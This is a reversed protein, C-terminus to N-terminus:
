YHVGYFIEFLDQGEILCFLEGIEIRAWDYISGRGCLLQEIFQKAPEFVITRRHEHRMAELRIEACITVLLEELNWLM